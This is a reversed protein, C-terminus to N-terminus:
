KRCIRSRDTIETPTLKRHKEKRLTLSIGKIIVAPYKTMEINTLQPKKSIAAESITPTVLLSSTVLLLTSAKLLSSRLKTSKM